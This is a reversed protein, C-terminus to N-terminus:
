IRERLLRSEKEEVFKQIGLQGKYKKFGHGEVYLSGNSKILQVISGGVSYLGHRIREWKLTSNHSNHWKELEKEVPDPYKAVFEYTPKGSTIKVRKHSNDAKEKVSKAKDLYEDLKNKRANIRSDGLSRFNYRSEKLPSDDEIEEQGESNPDNELNSLYNRTVIPDLSENNDECQQFEMSDKTKRKIIKDEVNLNNKPTHSCYDPIPRYYTYNELPYMNGHNGVNGILPSYNEVICPYKVNLHPRQYNPSNM